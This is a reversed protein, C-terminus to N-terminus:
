YVNGHGDSKGVFGGAQERINSVPVTQGTTGTLGTTGTTNHHHHGTGTVGSGLGAGSNGSNFGTAGSGGALNDTMMGSNAHHGHTGVASPNEHLANAEKKAERQEPAMGMKAEIKHMMGEKQQGDHHGHTTTTAHENHHGHKGREGMEHGAVGGVVAGAPGGALGGVVAGSATHHGHHKEHQGHQAHHEQYGPGSGTTAANTMGVGANSNYSSRTTHDGQGYEDNYINNNLGANAGVSSNPDMTPNRTSAGSTPGGVTSATNIGTGGAKADYTNHGDLRNDGMGQAGGSGSKDLGLAHKVKDM